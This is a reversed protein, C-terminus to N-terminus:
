AIPPLLHQFEVCYPLRARTTKTKCYIIAPRLHQLFPAPRNVRVYVSYYKRSLYSDDGWPRRTAVDSLESLRGSNLKVCELQTQALKVACLQRYGM